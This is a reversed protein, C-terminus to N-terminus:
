KCVNDITELTTDILVDLASNDESNPVSLIEQKSIMMLKVIEM